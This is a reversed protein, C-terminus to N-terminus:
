KFFKSFKELTIKSFDEILSPVYKKKLIKELDTVIKAFEFSDIELDIFLKTNLKIGKKFKKKFHNIIKEKKDM